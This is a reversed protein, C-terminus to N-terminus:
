YGENQRLGKFEQNSPLLIQSSPKPLLMDTRTAQGGSIEILMEKRVIDFWRNIEFALEWKREDLVAKDFEQQSMGTPLDELGARRRVQNIADLADASPGGDTMNTAEAYILLVDAYRILCLSGDGVDNEYYEESVGRFKAIHPNLGSVVTAGNDFVTVFTGEKRPGEPFGDYFEQESFFDSWAKGRDNGSAKTSPHLHSGINRGEVLGHFSFIFESNILRNEAEWLDSFNEELSYQKSDIVEKAKQKALAFASADRLPWSAQTLYVKALLAKAAGQTAKGKESFSVPLALEAYELDSIIQQYIESVSSQQVKFAEASNEETIIQVEGFWRTLYFYCFARLFRAQGVIQNKTTESVGTVSEQNGIVTNSGNISMYLVKWFADIYPHNTPIRYNEFELIASHTINGAIDDAGSTMIFPYIHDFGIWNYFLPQYAAVLAQEFSTEDTFYGEPSLGGKPNEKLDTCSVSFLFIIISVSFFFNNTNKM